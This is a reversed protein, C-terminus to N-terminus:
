DKIVVKCGGFGIAQRQVLMVNCLSRRYFEHAEGLAHRMSSALLSAKETMCNEGMGSPYTKM